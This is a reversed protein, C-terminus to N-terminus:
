KSLTKLVRFKKNNKRLIRIRKKRMWILIKMKLNMLHIMKNIKNMKKKMLINQLIKISLM